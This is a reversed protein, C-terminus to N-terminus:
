IVLHFSALLLLIQNRHVYSGYNQTRNLMLSRRSDLIKLWRNVNLTCRYDKGCIGLGGRYLCFSGKKFYKFSLTVCKTGLCYMEFSETSTTSTNNLVNKISYPKLSEINIENLTAFEKTQVKSPLCKGTSGVCCTICRNKYNKSRCACERLGIRTCEISHCEDDICTGLVGCM